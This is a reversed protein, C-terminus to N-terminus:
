LHGKRRILIHYGAFRGFDRNINGIQDILRCPFKEKFETAVNYGLHTKEHIVALQGFLTLLRNQVEIAISRAIAAWDGSAMAWAFSM